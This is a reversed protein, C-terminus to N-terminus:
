KFLSRWLYFTAYAEWGQWPLALRKLYDPTPKKSAALRVKVANQLGVDGVPFATLQRLCKLLVYDATWEGVGKLSVLRKKMDALTPERLLSEKTLQSDMIAQAAGILYAAKQKSFQMSVFDDVTLHAVKEPLPFLWYRRGEYDTHEGFAQVFRRKLNYAFTLNIQQGIIAWALAEFLNPIGVIYLGQYNHVVPALVADARAMEYFPRIDTDLNFWEVVYQRVVAQSTSNGDYGSFKVLLKNAKPATIELIVHCGNVRIAKYITGAEVIYLCDLPSLRLFDVQKDFCFEAPTDIEIHQGSLKM